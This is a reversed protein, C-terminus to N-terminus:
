ASLAKILDPLFDGAKEKIDAVLKNIRAQQDGAEAAALAKEVYKDLRAFYAARDEDDHKPHAEMAEALAKAEAKTHNTRAVEEKTPLKTGDWKIGKDKLARNGVSSILNYGMTKPEYGLAELEASAFKIAGYAARLVSQTNQATKLRGAALAEGTTGKDREAFTKAINVMEGVHDKFSKTDLSEVMLRVLDMRTIDESSPLVFRDYLYQGSFNTSAGTRMGAPRAATAAETTTRGELNAVSSTDQPHKISRAMQGKRSAPQAAPKNQQANM